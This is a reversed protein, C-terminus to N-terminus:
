TDAESYVEFGGECSAILAKLREIRKFLREEYSDFKVSVPGNVEPKSLAKQYYAAQEAHTQDLLSQYNERETAV